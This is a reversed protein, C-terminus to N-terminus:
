KNGTFNLRISMLSKHDGDARGISIITRTSKNEFESGLSINNFFVSISVNDEEKAYCNLDKEHTSTYLSTLQPCTWVQNSKLKFDLYVPALILM